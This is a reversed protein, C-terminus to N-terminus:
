STELLDAAVGWVFGRTHSLATRASARIDTTKVASRWGCTCSARWVALGSDFHAIDVSVRHRFEVREVRQGYPPDSVLKLATMGDAASHGRGNLIKM